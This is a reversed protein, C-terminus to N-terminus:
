LVAHRAPSWETEVLAGTEISERETRVADGPVRELLFLTRGSRHAYLKDGDSLLFTCAGLTPHESLERLAALMARDAADAHGEHSAPERDLRSLLFAFLLESDTEGRICELRRAATKQRVWAVDHLTGNHAFVWRDPRF